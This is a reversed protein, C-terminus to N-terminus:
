IDSFHFVEAGYIVYWSFSLAFYLNAPFTQLLRRILVTIWIM